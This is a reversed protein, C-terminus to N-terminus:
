GTIGHNGSPYSYSSKLATGPNKGTDMGAFDVSSTWSKLLERGFALKERWRKEADNLLWSCGM